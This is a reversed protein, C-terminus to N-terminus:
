AAYRGPTLGTIARFHRTFHAQDYFGNALAVQAPPWGNRLMQRAKQIRLNLLFQHPPLGAYRRFARVLYSPSWRALVSLEDLSPNRDIHDLLYEIVNRVAQGNDRPSKLKSAGYRECLRLLVECMLDQGRLDGREIWAHARLFSSADPDGRIVPTIFEPLPDGDTLITDIIWQPSPYLSRYALGENTTPRGTHVEGPNVLVLDGPRVIYTRGNWYFEEVGKEIVGIVYTDHFHRPFDHNYIHANILDLTEERDNWLFLDIRDRM